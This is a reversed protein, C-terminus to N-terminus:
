SAMSRVWSRRRVMASPPPWAPWCPPRTRCALLDAVEEGAEHVFRSDVREAALREIGLEGAISASWVLVSRARWMARMFMSFM